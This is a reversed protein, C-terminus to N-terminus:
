LAGRVSERLQQVAAMVSPPRQEFARMRLRALESLMFDIAEADSMAAQHGWARRVAEQGYSAVAVLPGAWYTVIMAAAATEFTQALEGEEIEEALSNVLTLTPLVEDVPADSLAEYAADPTPDPLLHRVRALLEEAEAAKNLEPTQSIRFAVPAAESLCSSVTLVAEEALQEADPSPEAAKRVADHLGVPAEQM